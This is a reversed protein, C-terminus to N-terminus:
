KKSKKSKNKKSKNKKSKRKGGRRLFSSVKGMASNAMASGKAKAADIGETVREKAAIKARNAAQRMETVKNIAKNKIQDFDVTKLHEMISPTTKMEEDMEEVAQAAKVFLEEKEFHDLKNIMEDIPTEPGNTRYKEYDRNFRLLLVACSLLRKDDPNIDAM